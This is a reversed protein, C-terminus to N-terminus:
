FLEQEDDELGKYDWLADAAIYQPLSRMHNCAVLLCEKAKKSLYVNVRKKREGKHRSGMVKHTLHKGQEIYEEIAKCVLQSFIEKDEPLLKDSLNMPLISNIKELKSNSLQEHHHIVYLWLVTSVTKTNSMEYAEAYTEIAGMYEDNLEVVRSVRHYTGFVFPGHIEPDFWDIAKKAIDNFSKIGECKMYWSLTRYNEITVYMCFKAM